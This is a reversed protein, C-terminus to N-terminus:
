LSASNPNSFTTDIQTFTDFVGLGLGSRLRDEVINRVGENVFDSSLTGGHKEYTEKLIEADKATIGGVSIASLLTDSVSDQYIGFWRDREEKTATILSNGFCGERKEIKEGQSRILKVSNDDLKLNWIVADLTNIDKEWAAYEDGYQSFIESVEKTPLNNHYLFGVEASPIEFVGRYEVVPEPVFAPVYTFILLSIVVTPIFFRKAMGAACGIGSLIAALFFAFSLAFWESFYDLYVVPLALFLVAITLFSLGLYVGYSRASDSMLGFVLLLIFDFGLFFPEKTGMLALVVFLPWFLFLFIVWAKGEAGEDRWLDKAFCVCICTYIAVLSLFLFGSIASLAYDTIM